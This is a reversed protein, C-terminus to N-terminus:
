KGGTKNLRDKITNYALGALGNVPKGQAVRPLQVIIADMLMYTSVLVVTPIPLMFGASGLGVKAGVGVGYAIKEYTPIDKKLELGSFGKALGRIYNKPKYEKELEKIVDTDLPM